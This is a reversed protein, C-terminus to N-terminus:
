FLVQGFQRFDASTRGTHPRRLAQGLRVDVLVAGDGADAVVQLLGPKQFARSRAGRTTHVGARRKELSTELPSSRRNPELFFGRSPAAFVGKARQSGASYSSPTEWGFPKLLLVM